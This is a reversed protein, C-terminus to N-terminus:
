SDPKNLSDDRADGNGDENGGFLDVAGYGPEGLTERVVSDVDPQLRRPTKGVFHRIEKIMHAQDYFSGRVQAELGPDLEEMALLTAARVARFKRILGVPTQGFFQAVLRQVQRESYPLADLLDAIEPKFSASLWALTQSIVQEHRESLPRLGQRIEQALLDVGSRPTLAGEAAQDRMALLRQCTEESLLAAGDFSADKVRHASARVFSAWGLNNISAGIVLTDPRVTFRQARTLTGLLFLPRTSDTRGDHFTMTGGGRVVLCLQGSYAPMMDEVAAPGVQMIYFSNVFPALDAPAAVWEFTVAQDLDATDSM